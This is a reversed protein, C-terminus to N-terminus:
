PLDQRPQQRRIVLPRSARPPPTRPESPLTLTEDDSDEEESDFYDNDITFALLELMAATTGPGVGHREVVLVVVDEEWQEDDSLDDGVPHTYEVSMVVYNNGNQKERFTVHYLTDEQVERIDYDFIDELEIEELMDPVANELSLMKSLPMSFTNEKTKGNQQKQKSKQKTKQKHHAIRGSASARATTAV